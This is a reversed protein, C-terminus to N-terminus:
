FKTEIDSNKFMPLQCVLPEELLLTEQVLMQPRSFEMQIM